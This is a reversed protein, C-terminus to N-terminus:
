LDEEDPFKEFRKKGISYNILVPVQKAQRASRGLEFDYVELVVRELKRTVLHASCSPCALQEPAEKGPGSFV